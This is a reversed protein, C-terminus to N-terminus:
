GPVAEVAQELEILQTGEPLEPAAEVDLERLDREGSTEPALRIQAACDVGPEGARFQGCEVPLLALVLAQEGGLCGCRSLVSHSRGFPVVHLVQRKRGLTNAPDGPRVPLHRHEGSDALAE